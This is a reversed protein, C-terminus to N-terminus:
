QNDMLIKVNLLFATVECFNAYRRYIEVVACLVRVRRVMPFDCGLALMSRFSAVAVVRIRLGYVVIFLFFFSSLTHLLYYIATLLNIFRKIPLYYIHIFLTNMRGCDIHMHAFRVIYAKSGYLCCIQIRFIWFQVGMQAIREARETAIDPRLRRICNLFFSFFCLFITTNSPNSCDRSSLAGAIWANM